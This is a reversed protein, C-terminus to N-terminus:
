EVSIVPVERLSVLKPVILLEIKYLLSINNNNLTFSFSKGVLVHRDVQGQEFGVRIGRTRCKYEIQKYVM